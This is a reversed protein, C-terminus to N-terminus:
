RRAALFVATLAMFILAVCLCFIAADRSDFTLTSSSPVAVPALSVPVVATEKKINIAPLFKLVGALVALIQDFM